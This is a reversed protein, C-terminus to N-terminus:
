TAPAPTIELWTIVTTLVATWNKLVNTLIQIYYIITIPFLWKILLIPAYCQPMYVKVM